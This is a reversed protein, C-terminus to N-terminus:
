HLISLLEVVWPALFARIRADKRLLYSKDVLSYGYAFDSEPLPIAGAEVVYLECVEHEVYESHKDKAKYEVHGKYNVPSLLDKKQLGWERYLTEYVAEQSEQVDQGHVLPHSSAGLDYVDDFVPHKRHQLLVREAIYVCVTFGRHLIGEKHAHWKDVPNLFVNNSDVAAVLQHKDYYGM